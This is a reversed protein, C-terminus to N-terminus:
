KAEFISQLEDRTAVRWLKGTLITTPDIEKIHSFWFRNRGGVKETLAKLNDARRPGTTITLVRGLNSGYMTECLSKGDKGPTFYEAYARIKTAFDKNNLTSYQNTETARDAELYLYYERDGTDITIRADPIVTTQIIRGREGTLTVKAKAHDRKLQKDDVWNTIKWGNRKVAVETAVRVTNIMLRHALFIHSPNRNIELELLEEPLLDHYALYNLGKQSIWYIFPKRGESLKTPQDDRDVLGHHYLLQLRASCRNKPLNKSLKRTILKEFYDPNFLLATLHECTIVRYLAVTRLMEIDRGTLRMNPLQSPQVLARNSPLQKKKKPLDISVTM